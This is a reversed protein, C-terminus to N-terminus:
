PWLPRINWLSRYEGISCRTHCSSAEIFMCRLAGFLFQSTHPTLSKGYEEEMNDPGLIDYRLSQYDLNSADDFANFGGLGAYDNSGGGYPFMTGTTSNISRNHLITSISLDLICIDRILLSSTSRTLSMSSLTKSAECDHIFSATTFGVCLRSNNM